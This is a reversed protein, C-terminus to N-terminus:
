PKIKDLFVKNYEEVFYKRGKKYPLHKVISKLGYFSFSDDPSIVDIRSGDLNTYYKNESPNEKLKEIMEYSRKEYSKEGGHAVVNAMSSIIELLSKNKKNKYNKLESELGKIVRRKEKVSLKNWVNCAATASEEPNFRM